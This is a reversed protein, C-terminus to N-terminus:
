RQKNWGMVVSLGRYLRYIGYFVMLGGIIYAIKADLEITGFYRGYVVMCGFLMYIVGMGMDLTTRFSRYTKNNEINNDM